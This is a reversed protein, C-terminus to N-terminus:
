TASNLFVIASFGLNVRLCIFSFGSFFLALIFLLLWGLRTKRPLSFFIFYFSSLVVVVVFLMFSIGIFNFLFYLYPFFFFSRHLTPYAFAFQWSFAEGLCILRLLWFSISLGSLFWHLTDQVPSFFLCIMLSCYIVM